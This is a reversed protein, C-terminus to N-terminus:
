DVCDVPELEIEFQSRDVFGAFKLEIAFGILKLDIEFQNQEAFGAFKLEIAIWILKLDIGIVILKEVAHAFFYAVLGFIQTRKDQNFSDFNRSLKWRKEIQMQEQKFTIFLVNFENM